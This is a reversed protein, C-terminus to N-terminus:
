TPLTNSDLATDPRTPTEWNATRKFVATKNRKRLAEGQKGGTGTSLTTETEASSSYQKSVLHIHKQTVHKSQLPFTPVPPHCPTLMHCHTHLITPLTFHHPGCEGTWALGGELFVGGGRGGGCGWALHALGLFDPTPSPM